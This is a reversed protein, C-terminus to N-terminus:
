PDRFPARHASVRRYLLTTDCDNPVCCRRLQNISRAVAVTQNALLDRVTQQLCLHSQDYRFSMRLQQLQNEALQTTTHGRCQERKLDQHNMAVHM